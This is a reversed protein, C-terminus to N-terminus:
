RLNEGLKYPVDTEIFQCELIENINESLFMPNNFLVGQINVYKKM